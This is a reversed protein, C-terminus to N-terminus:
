SNQADTDTDPVGDGDFDPAQDTTGGGPGGGQSLDGPPVGRQGGMEGGPGGPYAGRGWDDTTQTTTTDAAGDDAVAYGAGFGAGGIALGAVVAGAAVARRGFPLRDRWTRRATPISQETM